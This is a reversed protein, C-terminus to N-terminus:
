FTFAIELEFQNMELEIKQAPDLPNGGKVNSAPAYVMVAHIAKGSEGILKSCGLTFHNEVVGPALINFMVQSTPVPQQTNSYGARFIWNDVGSYETGIKIVSIDKWGFGAGKATGLPAHNANPTYDMPNSPDTGTFFAPLLTMVDMPNSVSAVDTYNIMKYDAMVAWNENMEFALGITWNSPIDFDGKEAFLGAYDDFESMMTKSQYSAGITLKETLKGLYGIKIAYGFAADHDNGTLANANSSMPAFSSLGLAEFYQYALLGTIGLSHNDSLKRSYTLGLFMQALDVGTTKSSQDGFTMTPYNTNMGGNGFFTASFSSVENIMWNAGMSPMLFLKSDSEVTGPMLGFAPAPSPTGSVTYQRNPNFFGVGLQYQKGLFVHGAPNGNMLSNKYWAIGAGAMGKNQAGYGVGFYGDTASLQSTIMLGAWLFVLYIKKM